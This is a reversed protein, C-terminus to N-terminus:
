HASKDAQYIGILNNDPDMVYAAYGIGPITMKPLAATAGADLARKWYDDVSPVDIVTVHSNVPQGPTPKPGRRQLMGGNIGPGEGNDILWYDMQPMHTFRWGFVKTYFDALKQPDSAHIEFHGVRTMLPREPIPQRRYVSGCRASLAPLKFNNRGM